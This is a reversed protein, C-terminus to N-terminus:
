YLVHKETELRYGYQEFLPILKQILKEKKDNRVIVEEMKPRAAQMENAHKIMREANKIKEDIISMKKRGILAMWVLEKAQALYSRIVGLHAFSITSRSSRKHTKRYNQYHSQIHRFPHEKINKYEEIKQEIRAVEKTHYEEYERYQAKIQELTLAPDKMGYFKDMINFQILETNSRVFGPKSEAKGMCIAFHSPFTNPARVRVHLEENIGRSKAWGQVFCDIRSALYAQFDHVQIKDGENRWRQMVSFVMSRPSQLVSAADSFLLEPNQDANRLFQNQTKLEDLSRDINTTFASLTLITDKM